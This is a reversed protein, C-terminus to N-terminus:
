EDHEGSKAALVAGLVGNIFPASTSGGYKKAINVAENVSVKPPIDELYEIEYVALQLISLDVKSIRDIDWKKLRPSIVANIEATHEWVGCVVAQIYALNERTVEEQAWMENEPSATECLYAIVEEPRIGTLRMEFIMKFADERANTRSM